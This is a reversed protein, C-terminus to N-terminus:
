LNKRRKDVKIKACTQCYNGDKFRHLPEGLFPIKNLKKGCCTCYLEEGLYM